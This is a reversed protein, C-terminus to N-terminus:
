YSSGIPRVWQAVFRQQADEWVPLARWPRASHPTMEVLRVATKAFRVKLLDQKV